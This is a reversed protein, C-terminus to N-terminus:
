KTFFKEYRNQLNHFQLNASHKYLLLFCLANKEEDKLGQLNVLVELITKQEADQVSILTTTATAISNFNL